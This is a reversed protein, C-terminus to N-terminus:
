AIFGLLITLAGLTVSLLTRLLLWPRAVIGAMM